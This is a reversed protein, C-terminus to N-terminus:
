LQLYKAHVHKTWNTLNTIDTVLFDEMQGQIIKMPPADKNIADKSQNPLRLYMSEDEDEISFYMVVTDICKFKPQLEKYINRLNRISTCFKRSFIHYSVKDERSGCSIAWDSKECSFYECLKVILDDLMEIDYDYDFFIRILASDDFGNIIEIYGHNIKLKELLETKSIDLIERTKKDISEKVLIKM